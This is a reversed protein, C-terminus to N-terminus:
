TALSALLRPSQTETILQHRSTQIETITPSSPNTNYYYPTYFQCFLYGAAAFRTASRALAPAPSGPTTPKLGAQDM